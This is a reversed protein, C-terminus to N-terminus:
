HHVVHSDVIHHLKQDVWSGMSRDITSLAGRQWTWEDDDFHPVDSHTHQQYTIMVLYMNCIMQPILYVIIVNSIGYEYAALGLLCFMSLLGFNSARVKSNQKDTFLKSNADFHSEGANKKAGTFNTILYLWFGFFLITLFRLTTGLYTKCFKVKISEPHTTPPVWSEGDSLHNTRRHHKAHSIQWSFYPCLLFSHLVYGVTANLTSSPSFGEHGCEHAIVWLATFNLGQYFWYVPFTIWNYAPFNNSFGIVAVISLGVLALDFALYYLSLSYDKEWLETPICEKISKVTVDQNTKSITHSLSSTKDSLPQSYDKNHRNKTSTNIMRKPRHKLEIQSNKDIDVSDYIKTSPRSAKDGHHLAKKSGAKQHDRGPNNNEETSNKIQCM